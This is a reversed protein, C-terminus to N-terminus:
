LVCKKLNALLKCLFNSLMLLFLKLNFLKLSSNRLKSSILMDKKHLKLVCFILRRIQIFTRYATTLIFCVYDRLSSIKRRTFLSVWFLPHDFCNLLFVQLVIFGIFSDRCIIVLITFNRLPM